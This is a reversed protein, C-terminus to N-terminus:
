AARRRAVRRKATHRRPTTRKVRRHSATRRKATKRKAPKRKATSRKVTRRKVTSRKATRRKAPKAASKTLKVASADIARFAGRVAQHLASDKPYHSVVHNALKQWTRKHAGSFCKKSTVKIKM